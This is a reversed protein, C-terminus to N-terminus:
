PLTGAVGGALLALSGRISTLPTRLEHSVTSVFESKMQEARKIETIDHVMTLFYDPTGDDRAIVSVSTIVWVTSGDKRLYRKTSHRVIASAPEAILSEI